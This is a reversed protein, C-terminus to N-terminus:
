TRIVFNQLTLNVSVSQLTKAQFIKHVTDITSILNSLTMPLASNNKTM